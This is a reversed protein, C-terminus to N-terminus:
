TLAIDASHPQLQDLLAPFNASIPGPLLAEPATCASAVEITQGSDCSRELALLVELVHRAVEASARPARGALIADVTDVPGVAWWRDAWGDSPPTIVDWKGHSRCRRLVANFADGTNDLALSAQTGFVEISSARSGPSDFSTTLSAIVGSDFEVWGAVHTPTSVHFTQG